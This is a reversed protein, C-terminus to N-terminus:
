ECSRPQARGRAAGNWLWRVDVAFSWTLLALSLAALWVSVAQSVFPALALMLGAMQIVCVAQRRRSPPLPPRIWVWVWSAAVFGYRMLGSAVIWVGAKHFQYVLLSLALILAADVEMDFRAGFRSAMGSRRAYRGDAADLMTAALATFSAALAVTATPSEGLVGAVLAFLWARMMTVRNAPGLRDFPHHGRLGPLAIAMALAFIAAAKFPYAASLGIRPAVPWLLVFAATAGAASVLTARTVLPTLVHPAGSTIM